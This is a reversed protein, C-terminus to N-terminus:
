GPNHVGGPGHIAILISDGRPTDPLVLILWLYFLKKQFNNEM